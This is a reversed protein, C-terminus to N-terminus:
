QLAVELAHAGVERVLEVRAPRAADDHEHRGLGTEELDKPQRPRDRALGDDVVRRVDLRERRQGTGVPIAHEQDVALDRAYQDAVGLPQTLHRADDVVHMSPVILTAPRLRPVLAPDLFLRVVVDLVGAFLEEVAELLTM